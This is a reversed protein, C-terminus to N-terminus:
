GEVDVTVLLAGAEVNQDVAVAVKSVRGAAEARLENQMKMAEIVVLPDGIAVSEGEAVSIAVVRGPMPARLEGAGGGKLGKKKRGGERDSVIEVRHRMALAAVDRTSGKGGVAIDFSQGDILVHMGGPVPRADCEYPKGDVRVVIAGATTQVDIEREEGGLTVRYKM